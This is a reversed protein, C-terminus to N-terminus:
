QPNKPPGAMPPAAKSPGEAAEARSRGCPSDDGWPAWLVGDSDDYVPDGLLRDLAQRAAPGTPGALVSARGKEGNAGRPVYIWRFGAAALAERDQRTVSM